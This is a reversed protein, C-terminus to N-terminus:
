INNNDSFCHTFYALFYFCQTLSFQKIKFLNFQTTQLNLRSMPESIFFMNLSYIYIYLKIQELICEYMYNKQTM